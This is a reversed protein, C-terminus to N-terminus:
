LQFELGLNLTYLTFNSKAGLDYQNNSSIMRLATGGMMSWHKFLQYRGDLTFANELDSQKDNTYAGSASRALRGSFNRLTLQYGLTASHGSKKGGFPQRYSPSFSFSTYSYYDAIPKRIGADFYAQNSSNLQLELEASARAGAWAALDGDASLTLTSDSRRKGDALDLTGDANVLYSDSYDKLLESLVVRGSLTESLAHRSELSLKLGNYDKTASNKGGNFSATLDRYNPYGRHMVDAGLGLSWNGGFAQSDRTLGLGLGYEEFDYPNAFWAQGPSELNAGRMATGRLQTKLSENMTHRWSPRLLATARQTFFSDEAIVKDASTSSLLGTLSLTNAEDLKLAPITLLQGLILNSSGSGAVGAGGGRADLSLFNKFELAQAPASALLLFSLLARLMNTGNPILAQFHDV